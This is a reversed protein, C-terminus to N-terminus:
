FGRQGDEGGSENRVQVCGDIESENSVQAVGMMCMNVSVGRM